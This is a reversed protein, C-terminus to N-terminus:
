RLVGNGGRMKITYNAAFYIFAAGLIGLVLFGTTLGNFEQSRVYDISSFPVITRENVRLQANQLYPLLKDSSLILSDNMIEWTSTKLNGSGNFLIYESSDKTTLYLKENKYQDLETLKIENSSYCGVAQALFAPILIACIINKM